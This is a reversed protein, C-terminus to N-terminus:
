QGFKNLSFILDYILYFTSFRIKGNFDNETRVLHIENIKVISHKGPEKIFSLSFM